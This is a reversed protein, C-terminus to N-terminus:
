KNRTHVLLACTETEWHCHACRNVLVARPTARWSGDVGGGHACLVQVCLPLTSGTV